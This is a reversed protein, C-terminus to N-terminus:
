EAMYVERDYESGSESSPSYILYTAAAQTALTHDATDKAPNTDM